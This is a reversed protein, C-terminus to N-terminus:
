LGSYLSTVLIDAMEPMLRDIICFAVAMEVREVFFVLVSPKQREVQSGVRQHVICFIFYFRTTDNECRREHAVGEDKAMERM